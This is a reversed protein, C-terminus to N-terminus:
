VREELPKTQHFAHWLLDHGTKMSAVIPVGRASWGVCASGTVHFPRLVANRTNTRSLMAAHISALGDSRDSARNRDRGSGHTNRM